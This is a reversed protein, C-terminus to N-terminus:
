AVLRGAFGMKPVDALIAVRGFPKLVHVRTADLVRDGKFAGVRFQRAGVAVGTVLRQGVLAGLAVLRGALGVEPVDALVAVGWVPKLVRVRASDLVRNGEFAGVRCERARAAVSSAPLEGVVAGLAVLGRALRVKPVDALVAVGWVPKLVRVRASDLVRDGEFAGVGFQRAGVAVSAVLLQGVVAGLAVFWGVLLVKAGGALVAVCRFTPGLRGLGDLVLCFLDRVIQLSPVIAQHTVIRFALHLRCRRAVLAIRVRLASKAV